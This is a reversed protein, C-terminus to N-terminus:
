SKGTNLKKLYEIFADVGVKGTEKMARAMFRSVVIEDSGPIDNFGFVKALKVRRGIIEKIREKTAAEQENVAGDIDDIFADEQMEGLDAMSFDLEKDDFIGKLDYNLEALEARLMETDIDSIAVRNDALRAAKAQDDTLDDRILVPVSELGLKIAALRRGHGKIIVMNKDVVIPQDWGFQKISECIKAVQAPEHKKSNLAYPILDSTPVIKVKLEKM